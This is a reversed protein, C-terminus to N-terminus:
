YNPELYIDLIKKDYEKNIEKEKTEDYNLKKLQKQHEKMEDEVSKILSNYGRSIKEFDKTEINSNNCGM